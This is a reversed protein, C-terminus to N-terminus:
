FNLFLLAWYCQVVASGPWQLLYGGTEETKISAQANLQNIIQLPLFIGM